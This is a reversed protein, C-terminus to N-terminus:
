AVHTRGNSHPKLQPSDIVGTIENIIEKLRNRAVFLRRKITGEPVPKDDKAFAVAMDKISMRDYYFAILTEKDASKMRGLSERVQQRTEDLILVSIGGHTVIGEYLSTEGTQMEEKKRSRVKYTIAMRQTVISVWGKFREPDNITEIKRIIRMNVEQMVEEADHSDKVVGLAISYILRQHSSLLEGLADADGNQAARVLRADNDWSTEQDMEDINKAVSLSM